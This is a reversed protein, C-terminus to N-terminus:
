ASPTCGTRPSPWHPASAQLAEVATAYVGGHVVGWPTHHDRGADIAGTVETRTMDEFVLGSGRLFSSLAEPSLDPM